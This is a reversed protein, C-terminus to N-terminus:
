HVINKSIPCQSVEINKKVSKEKAYRGLLDAEHTFTRWVGKRKDEM